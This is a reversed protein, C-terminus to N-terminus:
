LNLTVWLSRILCDLGSIEPRINM